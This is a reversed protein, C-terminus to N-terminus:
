SRRSRARAYGNWTSAEVAIAGSVLAVTGYFSDFKPLKMEPENESETVHAKVEGLLAQLEHALAAARDMKDSIIEASAASGRSIKTTAM